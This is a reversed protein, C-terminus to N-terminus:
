FLKAQSAQQQHHSTELHERLMQIDRDHQTSQSDFDLKQQTVAILIQQQRMLESQLQKMGTKLVGQGVQLDLVAHGTNELATGLIATRHQVRDSREQVAASLHSRFGFDESLHTLFSLLVEATHRTAYGVKVTKPNDTQM